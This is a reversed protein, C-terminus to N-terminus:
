IYSIFNKNIVTQTIIITKRNFKYVGTLFMYWIEKMYQSSLSIYAMFSTYPNWIKNPYLSLKQSVAVVMDIYMLKQNFTKKERKMGQM